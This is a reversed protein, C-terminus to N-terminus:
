QNECSEEGKGGRLDWERLARIAFGADRIWSDKQEFFLDDVTCQQSPSLQANAVHKIMEESIPQAARWSDIAHIAAAAMEHSTAGFPAYKKRIALLVTEVLAEDPDNAPTEPVIEPEVAPIALIDRSPDIEAIADSHERLLIRIRHITEQNEQREAELAGIRQNLAEYPHSSPAPDPEVVPTAELNRIRQEFDNISLCIPTTAKKIKEEMEEYDKDIGQRIDEVRNSLRVLADGPAEQSQERVYLAGVRKENAAIRQNLAEVDHILLQIDEERELKDVSSGLNRVAIEWPPQEGETLNASALDYGIWKELRHIREEFAEDRNDLVALDTDVAKKWRRRLKM